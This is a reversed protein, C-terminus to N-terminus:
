GGSVPPILVLTDGDELLHTRSVLQEGIACASNEIRASLEASQESLQMLVDAATAGEPLNLERLNAGALRQLVGYFEIQIKM